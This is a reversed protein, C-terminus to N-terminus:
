RNLRLNSHLPACTFSIFFIFEIWSTCKVQNSKIFVYTTTTSPTIKILHICFIKAHSFSPSFDVLVRISVRPLVFTATIDDLTGEQYTEAYFLHLKLHQTMSKHESHENLLKPSPGDPFSYNTGCWEKRDKQVKCDLSTIDWCRDSTLVVQSLIEWEKDAHPHSLM